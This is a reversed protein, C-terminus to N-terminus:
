PWDPAGYPSEPSNVYINSVNELDASAILILRLNGLEPLPIGAM